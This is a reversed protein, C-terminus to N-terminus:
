EETDVVENDQSLKENSQTEANDSQRQAQEYYLRELEDTKTKLIYYAVGVPLDALIQQLFAETKAMQYNINNNM